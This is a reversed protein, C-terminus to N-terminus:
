GGQSGDCTECDCGGKAHSKDQYCIGLAELEEEVFPTPVKEM